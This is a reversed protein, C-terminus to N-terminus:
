WTTSSTRTGPPEAEVAAENTTSAPLAPTSGAQPRRDLLMPRRRALKARFRGKLRAMDDWIARLTAVATEPTASAVRRDLDARLENSEAEDIQGTGVVEGLMVATAEVADAWEAPEVGPPVVARLPEVAPVVLTKGLEIRRRARESWGLFAGLVVLTALALAGIMAVVVRRGPVGPFRGAAGARGNTESM